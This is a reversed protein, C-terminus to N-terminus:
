ETCGLNIITMEQSIDAAMHMLLGVQIHPCHCQWHPLFFVSFYNTPNNCPNPLERVMPFMCRSWIESLNLLFVERCWCQWRSIHHMKFLFLHFLMADTMMQWCGPRLKGRERFCANIMTQFTQLSLGRLMLLAVRIHPNLPSFYHPYLLKNWCQDDNAHIPHCGPRRKGWESVHM